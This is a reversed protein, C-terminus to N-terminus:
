NGPVAPWLRANLEFGPCARDVFVGIGEDRVYGALDHGVIVRRYDVADNALGDLNFVSGGIFYGLAGASWSGVRELTIRPEYVGEESPNVTEPKRSGDPGAFGVTLAGLSQRSGTAIETIHIYFDTPTDVVLPRHDFFIENSDTWVTRGVLIEDAATTATEGVGDGHALATEGVDCGSLAVVAIAPAALHFVYRSFFM